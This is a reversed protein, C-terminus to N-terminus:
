VEAEAPKTEFQANHLAAYVGGIAMLAAHSGEEVVVGSKLVIIKDADRITSLRHAIMIVTRGKMLRELAEIVHGESETDLAATPEDMILIRSDRIMARAIGIRQRQGGSLTLGREGIMTDYKDPMREVFEDANALKAAEIIEERTADPRGYAINEAVTGRFLVTDQLVFGIQKRLGQLTYERIDVGDITVKGSTPDYFRPILSVLTSKGGGTPGVVGVLQGPQITFHVDRLILAESDYGFTVHEFGIEGRPTDPERADAREPIVVDADLIAQIREVGVATQAITNTMKALDQVPKFFKNLYSLFITLVGATMAGRLILSAGRWLVFATCVAVTVAVVPSLLSKVRRAKLASEVTAWSIKGLRAEELDERGFAQVVRESELGQEVVAVIEAQNKRVEKTAKKVAKKFRVVFVLLLPTATVAVLAFDWNLWFMLGLMGVITFLDVLIGLTGSSAFNQITGIDTTITSLLTGVQHNDYYQLSLRQLHHYTRIRLDHAVWQGVSETYYNDVYSALAGIGAIAVFAIAALAAIHMKGADGLVRALLQALLDPFHHSAVVNDLIIKLPWPGALSMATEVLMALLVIVLIWRYPKILDRILLSM